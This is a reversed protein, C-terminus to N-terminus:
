LILPFVTVASIGWIEVNTNWQTKCDFRKCNNKELGPGSKYWGDCKQCKLALTQTHM